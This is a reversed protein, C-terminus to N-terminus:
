VTRQPYKQALREGLKLAQDFVDKGADNGPRLESWWALGQVCVRLM